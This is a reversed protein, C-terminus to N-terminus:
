FLGFHVRYCCFRTSLYKRVVFMPNRKSVSTFDSSSMSWYDCGNNNPIYDSKWPSVETNFNHYPHITKRCSRSHIDSHIFNIDLLNFIVVWTIRDCNHPWQSTMLLRNHHWWCFLFWVFSVRPSHTFITSKDDNISKNHRRLFLIIYTRKHCVTEASM